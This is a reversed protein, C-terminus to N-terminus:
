INMINRVSLMGKIHDRTFWRFTGEHQKTLGILVDIFTPRDDPTPRSLNLHEDIIKNFFADLEWFVKERRSVLGTLHDVIRGLVNPFYDEASFSSKVGMAEDFLDHFHKKHAFQESGYISGLAVTGVIGDMLTFIHDELYVPKQGGNTLHTILKDV